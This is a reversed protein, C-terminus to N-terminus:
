RVGKYERDGGQEMRMVKGVELDEVMKDWGKSM